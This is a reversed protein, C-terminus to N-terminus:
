QLYNVNILMKVLFKISTCPKTQLKKLLLSLTFLYIFLCEKIIEGYITNRAVTFHLILNYQLSETELLTQCETEKEMTSKM